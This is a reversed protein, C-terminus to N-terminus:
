VLFLPLLSVEMLMQLIDMISSTEKATNKSSFNYTNRRSGGLKGSQVTRFMERSGPKNGETVDNVLHLNADM